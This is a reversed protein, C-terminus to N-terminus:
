AIPSNLTIRSEDIVEIARGSELDPAFQAWRGAAPSHLLRKGARIFLYNPLEPSLKGLEGSNFKGSNPDVRSTLSKVPQKTSRQGTRNTIM